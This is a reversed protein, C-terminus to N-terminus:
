GIHTGHNAPPPSIPSNQAIYDELAYVDVPGTVYNTGSRFATCGDQGAALFSNVAMRYDALPDIPVGNFMILADPVRENYPKSLDYSWTFGESSGFTLRTNRPGANNPGEAGDPDHQPGGSSM